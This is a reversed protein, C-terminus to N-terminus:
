TQTDRHRHTYQGHLVISQMTHRRNKMQTKKYALKTVRANLLGEDHVVKLAFNDWIFIFPETDLGEANQLVFKLVTCNWGLFLNRRVIGM